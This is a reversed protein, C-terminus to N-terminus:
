LENGLENYQLYQRFQFQLLKVFSMRNYIYSYNHLENIFHNHTIITQYLTEMHDCSSTHRCCFGILYM